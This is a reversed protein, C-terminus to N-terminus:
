LDENGEIPYAQGFSAHLAGCNPCKKGGGALSWHFAWFVALCFPCEIRTRRKGMESVTQGVPRWERAANGSRNYPGKTVNPRRRERLAPDAQTSIPGDPALGMAERIGRLEDGISSSSPRGFKRVHCNYHRGEGFRAGSPGGDGVCGFFSQGDVCPEGCLDCLKSMACGVRAEMAPPSGAGLDHEAGVGCQTTVGVLLIRV